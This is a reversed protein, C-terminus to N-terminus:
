LKPRSNGRILGGKRTKRQWKGEGQWQIKHKNKQKSTPTLNM